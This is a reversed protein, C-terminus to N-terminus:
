IMYLNTIYKHIRVRTHDERRAACLLACANARTRAHVRAGHMHCAQKAHVSISAHTALQWMNHQKMETLPDTIPRQM